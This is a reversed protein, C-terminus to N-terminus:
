RNLTTKTKKATLHSGGMSGAPWVTHGCKCVTFWIKVVWSFTANELTTYETAFIAYHTNIRPAFWTPVWTLLRSFGVLDSDLSNARIDIFLIFYKDMNQLPRILHLRDDEVKEAHM